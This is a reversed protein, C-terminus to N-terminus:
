PSHIWFAHKYLPVLVWPQDLERYFCPNFRYILYNTSLDLQFLSCLMGIHSPITGYISNNHLNLILLNPFSSFSLNSLTGRLGFSGLSINTVTNSKKNCSIGVWNSCHNTGAVWSSLLAQSQNELSAKWTLLAAAEKENGEKSTTASSAIVVIMMFFVVLVLQFNPLFKFQNSPRTNAMSTTTKNTLKNSVVTTILLLLQSRFLM